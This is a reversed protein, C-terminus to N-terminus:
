KSLFGKFYNNVEMASSLKKSFASEFYLKHKEYLEDSIFNEIWSCSALEEYPKIYLYGQNLDAFKVDPQFYFYYSDNDRLSAFPSSFVDFGVPGNRRLSMIEEIFKM